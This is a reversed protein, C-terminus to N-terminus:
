KLGNVITKINHQVMGIYTGEPTGAKGMADAFLTGGIKVEHGEKKCGEVVAELAKQPVSSEVFVAKVKRAIILERIEKVDRLGAEALTSVGQLGEVAVGYARAFYGFADHSTILVRQEPPISTIQEHINADLAQLAKIHKSANEKFVTTNVSDVSQMKHSIEDVVVKWLQVDFWIHPDYVYKENEQDSLKLLAARDIGDTVVFVPKRAALRGLIEELKAELYLGNYFIVDANQLKKVDGPTAKYLHPDVGPGMLATVNAKDGVVNEVADKIMGTTVVINLKGEKKPTNNNSTESQCASLIVIFISAIILFHNKM